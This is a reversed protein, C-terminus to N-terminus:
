RHILSSKSSNRTRHFRASPFPRGSRPHADECRHGHLGAGFRWGNSSREMAEIFLFCCLGSSILCFWIVVMLEGMMDMCSDAFDRGSLVRCYRLIMSWVLFQCGAPNTPREWIREQGGLDSVIGIWICRFLWCCLYISAFLYLFAFLFISSFDFSFSFRVQFGGTWMM